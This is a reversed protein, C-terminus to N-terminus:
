GYLFDWHLFPAQPTVPDGYIVRVIVPIDSRVRRERAFSLNDLFAHTLNDLVHRSVRKSGGVQTVQDYRLVGTDANSALIHRKRSEHPTDLRARACIPLGGQLRDSACISTDGNCSLPNLAAAGDVLESIRSHPEDASVLCEIRHCAVSGPCRVDVAGHM